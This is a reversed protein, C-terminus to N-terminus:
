LAVAEARYRGSGEDVILAGTALPDHDWALIWGRAAAQELLRMKRIMTDHPFLDYGMNYPGRMHSYTPIIDGVYVVTEKGTEIIVQQHFRTHGGTVHVRVGDCVDTDGDLLTLVGHDMLPQYNEDRYTATMTAFGNVADDWEGRQTFYQARPFTPYLQGELDTMTAGGVHDFHLHSLIVIDIDAPEVDLAALSQVLTPGTMAYIDREKEGMKTGYGTDILILHQPTQVLLCNTAMDIRNQEDPTRLRSWLTKPVIGFMGGGDLKFQGGSVVRFETHGILM